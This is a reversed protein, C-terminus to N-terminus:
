WLPLWYALMVVAVVASSIQNIFIRYGIIAPRDLHSKVGKVFAVIESAAERM